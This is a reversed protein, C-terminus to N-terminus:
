ATRPVLDIVLIDAEANWRFPLLTCGIGRSVLLPGHETEFRGALYRRSLAGKPLYLPPLRPLVLQGGHTHGALALDLRHGDLDLLGSPQHMLLIRVERANAFAQKADPAGFGHDDLGVISVRHHPEPLSVSRNELLTVGAEALQSRVLDAGSYHDHNGLVAYVGYPAELRRFFPILRRGHHARLSIFDGGLLIVDPQAGRIQAVADELTRDSTTPGAHWDAAFVIRLTSARGMRGEVEVRHHSAVVRPSLGLADALHAPWDGVTVAAQLHEFLQMALPARRTPHTM